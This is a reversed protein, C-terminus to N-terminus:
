APTFLFGLMKVDHEPKILQRELKELEDEAWQVGTSLGRPYRAERNKGAWDFDILFVKGGSFLINPQRLDGFVFGKGHLLDIAKKVQERADEPWKESEIYEMIVMRLPGIFLGHEFRGKDESARLDNQGDLTGYYLLKPAMGEEALAEHAEVGYRDVFKVVLKRLPESNVVEAFFTINTSDADPLNVYKFESTVEKPKTPKTVESDKPDTPEIAEHEKLETPDDVQCEKFKTPYPFFCPLGIVELPNNPTHNPDAVPTLAGITQYYDDLTERARLLSFFLKAIKWVQRDGHTTSDSLHIDALHQVM